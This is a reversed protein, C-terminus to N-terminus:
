AWCLWQVSSLAGTYPTGDPKFAKITFHTTTATIGGGSSALVPNVIFGGNGTASVAYTCLVGTPKVGLNHPVEFEYPSTNGFDVPIVGSDFRHTPLLSDLAVALNQIQQSGNPPEQNDPYPLGHIPTNHTTM